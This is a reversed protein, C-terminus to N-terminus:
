KGIIQVATWMRPPADGRHIWELQTERLAEAPSHRQALFTHFRPFFEAALADDIPWLTAAVSPVGAAVFARAVSISTQGPQQRGRATGCAALVVVRTRTFHLMAIEVATLRRAHAGGLTVLAADMSEDPLDAHGIFHVIDANAARAQFEASDGLRPFLDAAGGYAAIVADAERRAWSLTDKGSTTAGEMLLLRPAAAAPAAESGLTWAASPSSVFVHREVFYHGGADVLAGFPVAELTADPVFVVNTASDVDNAVPAILYEYLHAATRRLQASDNASAAAVVAESGRLLAERSVAREVAHVGKEDVVFILLRNTLTAYEIVVSGGRTVPHSVPAVHDASTIRSRESYTFAAEIDGRRAALSMAEEYLEKEIAFTAFGDGGAAAAHRQTQIEHIAAEFDAAAEDDRTLMAFARGRQLLLEPVFMRRGKSRHFDIAHTLLPIAERRDDVLLAKVVMADAEAREHTARDVIRDIFDVAHQLDTGATTHDGLRFEVRARDLLTEAHGFVDTDPLTELRLGLLSLTVPWDSNVAAGRAAADLAVSIRSPETRGLAQLAAIRHLWATRREGLRDYVEAVIDRVSNAYALEGLHEFTVISRSLVDVADGWRGTSARALGLQWGVQAKYAPYPAPAAAYMQELSARAEAVRGQDYATNARFYAALLAVPSKGRDFNGQAGAFMAEAEAVHGSRYMRQATRFQLHANALLRKGAGDAGDIASVADRLMQDGRSSLVDAFARAVRLHGDAAASGSTEAEAWRGLIETEGWVRAEQPYSRAIERAEVSDNQLREYQQKLRDRFSALPVVARLHARAENAWPSSGDHALYREWAARAQDRLGMREIILARNFLAEPSHPDLRLAADAAALGEAFRAGDGTEVGATYRVAALDNWLQADRAAAAASTLIRDAEATDGALLHAVAAAHRGARSSDSATEKLVAGAVGIFQLREPDNVGNGRTSSYLPAWAFGGSLRPEFYRVDRPAAAALRSINPNVHRNAILRYSLFAIGALAAAALSLWWTTAPRAHTKPPAMPIVAGGGERDVRAAEGAVERCEECERLHDVTMALETGSLTGAVFAAVVEPELCRSDHATM